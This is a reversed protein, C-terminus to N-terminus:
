PTAGLTLTIPEGVTATRLIVYALTIEVTDETRTIGVDTVQVRPEYRGIVAMLELRVVDDSLGDDSSFVLDYIRVGLDPRMVREGPSTTVLLVLAQRILEEETAVDPFGAPGRRWPFSTGRAM